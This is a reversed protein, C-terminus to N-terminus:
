NVCVNCVSPQHTHTYIPTTIFLLSHAAGLYAIYRTSLKWSQKCNGVQSALSNNINLLPLSCCWASFHACLTILFFLIAHLSQVVSVWIYALFHMFVHILSCLPGVSPFTAVKTSFPRFYTNVPLVLSHVILLFSSLTGRRLRTKGYSCSSSEALERAKIVRIGGSFDVCLSFEATVWLPELGPYEM